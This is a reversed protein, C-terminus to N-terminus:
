NNIVLLSSEQDGNVQHKRCIDELAEVTYDIQEKTHDYNVILRIRGHNM